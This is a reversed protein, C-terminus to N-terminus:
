GKVKISKRILNMRNYPSCEENLHECTNVRGKM